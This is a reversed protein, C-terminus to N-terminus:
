SADGAVATDTRFETRRQYHIRWLLRWSQGTDESCQWDWDLSQKAINYFVMRYSAPRGNITREMSLTLKGDAFGGIFEMYNGTNDVWTQRWAAIAPVYVSVSLGLFPKTNPSAAFATFEEQIVQGDLIRTVRNRGRGGGAWTVDWDGLWFDFQQSEASVNPQDPLSTNASGEHREDPSMDPSTNPTM